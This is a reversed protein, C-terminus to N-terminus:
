TTIRLAQLMTLRNALFADAQVLLEAAQEEASDIPKGDRLLRESQQAYLGTAFRAWDGPEAVGASRALLFLQETRTVVHAGGTVPSALYPLVAPTRARRCLMANLAATRPAAADIVADDQAPFLAGSGVLVVIMQTAQAFNTGREALAREIDHFSRMRHDGMLDLLPLYLGENLGLEGLAGTVKLSVNKRPAGLIFRQARLLEIRELMPLPRAGRVWYDRRFYQNVIIDRTSERFTRDPLEALLRGQEATLNLSDVHDLLFAPCAFTLKAEALQESMRAFSMPTWDKNFFEHALYQRDQKDMAELRRLAVPNVAGFRADTKLLRKVFDVAADIRPVIGSGPAGMVRVHEAMLERVPAMAAWGPLTNYSIYLVGGVKLKRRIFDVIAARNDDSIWSWIGHLGIYDFDPLDPRKCFDEFADDFLRAGAGSTAALEQAFGAQAPNFDTGYWHTVSAAAHINVSLGQGFGLECATGVDPFVHGANLFALKLRAPNLEPYYGFTYGIEAMYGESWDAM